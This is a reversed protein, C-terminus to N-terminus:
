EYEYLSFLVLVLGVLLGWIAHLRGFVILGAHWSAILCGAIGIITCLKNNTM